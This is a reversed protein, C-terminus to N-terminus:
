RRAGWRGAFYGVRDCVRRGVFGWVGFFDRYIRLVRVWVDWGTM